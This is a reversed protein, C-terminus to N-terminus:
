RAAGEEAVAVVEALRVVHGRNFADRLADRRRQRMRSLRNELDAIDIDLEDLVVAERDRIRRVVEKVGAATAHVIKGASGTAIHLVSRNIGTSEVERFAMGALRHHTKTRTHEGFRVGVKANARRTVGVRGAFMTEAQDYGSANARRRYDVGRVVFQGANTM